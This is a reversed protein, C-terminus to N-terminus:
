RFALLAECCRLVAEPPSFEQQKMQSDKDPGTLATQDSEVTWCVSGLIIPFEYYLSKWVQGAKDAMM